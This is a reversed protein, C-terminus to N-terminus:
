PDIITRGGIIQEAIIDPPEFSRIEIVDPAASREIGDRNFWVARLGANLAGSVDIDWSDGVMVAESAECGLRELAAYFIEPAPKLHNVEESTVLVDVLPTLGCAEL